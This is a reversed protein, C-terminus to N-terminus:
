WYIEEIESRGNASKKHSHRTAVLHFFENLKIGSYNRILFFFFTKPTNGDLERLSIDAKECIRVLIM